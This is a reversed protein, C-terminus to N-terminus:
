QSSHLVLKPMNVLLDWNEPFSFIHCDFRVAPDTRYDAIVVLFPSSYRRLHLATYDAVLECCSVGFRRHVEIRNCPTVDWFTTSKVTVAM